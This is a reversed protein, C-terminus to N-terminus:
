RGGPRHEKCEARRGTLDIRCVCRADGDLAGFAANKVSQVVDRNLAGWVKDSQVSTATGDASVALFLRIDETPDDLMARQRAFSPTLGTLTTAVAVECRGGVSVPAPVDPAVVPQPARPRRAPVPARPKRPPVPPEDELIILEDDSVTFATDMPEEPIPATTAPEDRLLEGVPAADCREPLRERVITSVALAGVTLLALVKMSVQIAVSKKIWVLAALRSALEAPNVGNALAIRQIESKRGRFADVLEVYLDPKDVLGMSDLLRVARFYYDAPSSAQDPLSALLLGRGVGLGDSTWVLREFTERPVYTQLFVILARMAAEGKGAAAGAGIAPMALTM